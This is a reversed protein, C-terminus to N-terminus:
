SEHSLYGSFDAILTEIQAVSMHIASMSKFRGFATFNIIMHTDRTQKSATSIVTLCIPLNVMERCSM